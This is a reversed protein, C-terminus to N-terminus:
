KREHRGLEPQEALDARDHLPTCHWYFGVWTKLQAAPSLVPAPDNIQQSTKVM